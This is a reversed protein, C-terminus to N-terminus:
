PSLPGSRGTRWPGWYGHARESVEGVDAVHRRQRQARRDPRPRQNGAAHADLWVAIRAVNLQGISDNELARGARHMNNRKTHRNHHHQM